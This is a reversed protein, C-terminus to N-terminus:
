NMVIFIRVNLLWMGLLLKPPSQYDFKRITANKISWQARSSDVQELNIISVSSFLTIHEFNVIFVGSRSWQRRESINITLKSCIQCM